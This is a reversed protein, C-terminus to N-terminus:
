LPFRFRGTLVVPLSAAFGNPFPIPREAVVELGHRAALRRATESNPFSVHRPPDLNHWRKGFLRAEFSSPDPVVYYFKAGPKLLLRVNTLAADLDTLHELVFHMTVIDVAGGHRRVLEDMDAYIPLGLQTTLNSALSADNEYGLLNLQRERNVALYGGDGCGYDLLVTGKPLPKADYYVARMVVRRLAKYLASKRAHSPYEVYYNSVDTPVPVQQLLGCVRCRHYDVVFPQGLYYDPCGVHVAEAERGRCALCRFSTGTM